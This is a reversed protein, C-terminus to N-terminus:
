KSLAKITERRWQWIVEMKTYVDEPDPWLIKTAAAVREFIVDADVAKDHTQTMHFKMRSEVILKGCVPCPVKGNEETM